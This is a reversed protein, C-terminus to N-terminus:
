KLCILVGVFIYILYKEIKPSMQAYVRSMMDQFCGVGHQKVNVIEHVRTTLHLM